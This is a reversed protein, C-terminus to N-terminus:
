KYNCWVRSGLMKPDIGVSRLIETPAEGTQYRNWFEEKFRATFILKSDYVGKVNPNKRLIAQEESSFNKSM